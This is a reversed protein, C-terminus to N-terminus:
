ELDNYSYAKGLNRNNYHNLYADRFTLNDKHMHYLMKAYSSYDFLNILYSSGNINMGTGQSDSQRLDFESIGEEIYVDFGQILGHEDNDFLFFIKNRNVVYGKYFYDGLCALNRNEFALCSKKINTNMNIVLDNYYGSYYYHFIVTLSSCVILFMVTMFIIRQTEIM